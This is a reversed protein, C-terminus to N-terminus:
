PECERLVKEGHGRRVSLKSIASLALRGFFRSPTRGESLIAMSPRFRAFSNELIVGALGTKPETAARRVM